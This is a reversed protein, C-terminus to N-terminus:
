ENNEEEKKIIQRVRQMSIDYILALEPVCHGDDFMEKIKKNRGIDTFNTSPNCEYCYSRVGNSSFM